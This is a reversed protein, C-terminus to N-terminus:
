IAQLLKAIEYSFTIAAYASGIVWDPKEIKDELLKILQSALIEALNPYRLVRQCDFYGNSCMGSILETHPKEPDGDHFWVADCLEFLDLIEEQSLTRENFERPNIDLLIRM